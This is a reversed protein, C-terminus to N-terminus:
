DLGMFRGSNSVARALNEALTSRIGVVEDEDWNTVSILNPILNWPLKLQAFCTSSTPLRSYEPGANFRVNIKSRRNNEVLNMPLPLQHCSTAFYVLDKIRMGYTEMADRVVLTFVSWLCPSTRPKGSELAKRGCDIPILCGSAMGRVVVFTGSVNQLLEEITYDNDDLLNWGNNATFIEIPTMEQFLPKFAEELTSIGNYMLRQSLPQLSAWLMSLLGSAPPHLLNRAPSHHMHMHQQQRIKGCRPCLEVANDLFQIPQGLAKPCNACIWGSAIPIANDDNLYTEFSKRDVFSALLDLVSRRGLKIITMISPKSGAAAELWELCPVIDLGYREHQYNILALAHFFRSLSVCDHTPQSDIPQRIEGFIHKMEDRIMHNIRNRSAGDGYAIDLGKNNISYPVRLGHENSTIERTLDAMSDEVHITGTRLNNVHLFRSIRTRPTLKKKEYPILAAWIELMWHVRMKFDSQGIFYLLYGLSWHITRIQKLLWAMRQEKPLGFHDKWEDSCESFIGTFLIYLSASITNVNVANFANLLRTDQEGGHVPLFWIDDDASYLSFLACSPVHQIVNMHVLMGLQQLIDEAVDNLSLSSLSPKRIQKEAKFFVYPSRRWSFIESLAWPYFACQSISRIILSTTKMNMLKIPILNNFVMDNCVLVNNVPYDMDLPALDRLVVCLAKACPYPEQIVIDKGNGYQRWQLYSEKPGILRMLFNSLDPNLDHRDGSFPRDDPDIITTKSCKRSKNVATSRLLCRIIVKGRGNSLVWINAPGFLMSPVSTSVTLLSKLEALLSDRHFIIPEQEFYIWCMNDDTNEGFVQWETVPLARPFFPPFIFSVLEEPISYRVLLSHNTESANITDVPAIFPSKLSSNLTDGLHVPQCEGLTWIRCKGCYAYFTKHPGDVEIAHDVHGCISVLQCLQPSLPKYGPFAELFASKNLTHHRWDVDVCGLRIMIQLVICLGRLDGLQIGTARGVVTGDQNELLPVVHELIGILGRLKEYDPVTLGAQSKGTASVDFHETNLACHAVSSLSPILFNSEKFKDDLPIWRVSPEGYVNLMLFRQPKALEFHVQRRTDNADLARGFRMTAGLRALWHNITPGHLNLRAVADKAKGVLNEDFDLEKKLSPEGQTTAEQDARPRKRANRRVEEEEEEMQNRRNWLNIADLMADRQAQPKRRITKLTTEVSRGGETWRVIYRDPDGQEMSLVEAYAADDEEMMLLGEEFNM